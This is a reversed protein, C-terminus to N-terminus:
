LGRIIVTPFMVNLKDFDICYAVIYRCTFYLADCYISGCAFLFLTRTSVVYGVFASCKRRTISWASLTSLLVTRKLPM